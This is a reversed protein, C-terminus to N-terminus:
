QKEMKMRLLLHLTMIPMAYVYLVQIMKRLNGNKLCLKLNKLFFEDSSYISWNNSNGSNNLHSKVIEGTTSKSVSSAGNIFVIKVIKRTEEENLM